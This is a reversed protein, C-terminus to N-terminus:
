RHLLRLVFHVLKSGVLVLSGIILPIFEGPAEFSARGVRVRFPRM